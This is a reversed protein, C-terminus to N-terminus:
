FGRRDFFALGREIFFPLLIGQDLLGEDRMVGCLAVESERGWRTGVENRVDKFRVM